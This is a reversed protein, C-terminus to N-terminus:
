ADRSDGQSDAQTDRVRRKAARLRELASDTEQSEPVQRATTGGTGEGPGSGTGTHTIPRSERRRDIRADPQTASAERAGDATAGGRFPETAAPVTRVAAASRARRWAALPDASASSGGGTFVSIFEGWSGRDVALRRVAVDIVLIAAAIIAMLDWMRRSSRPPSMGRRDFLAGASIGAITHAEGGTREAVARLLASNDRTSRFERSYPVSVTAQVSGGSRRGQADELAVDVLYSGTASSPFRGEYRGPGVQSLALRSLSGDPGIIRADARAFNLLAGGAETAEFEVISEEGDVRARLALNSPAPPRMLWRVAREWFQQYGDWAIWQASWRGSTDGTFAISRGLGHNWYALIPDVGDPSVHVIPIQALGDRPVTVVYGGLAPLTGTTSAIPGGMDGRQEPTFEGEILLSRAGISVERIFIEPLQRASAASDIAHFSGGGIRAIEKLLADNAGDGVGITSITIREARAANAIASGDEPTGVTQGDTLVVMHRTSARSERLEDLAVRMASFQDTGGCPGIRSVIGIASAPDGIRQRPVVINPSHDFAIVCLEDLRTMSKIGAIAASNAMDQKIRGAGPVVAGMSGSCDIVLAVCARMLDRTAPPDMKVPMAQAVESEIWGGAGFARDGGTMMLGGGLDHVYSRLMRDTANDVAYRPVNALIVADYAALAAVDPGLQEPPVVDVGIRGARLSRVLPDSEAGTEDVVLVRGDGEVIVTATGVNNEPIADASSADPEFAVRFRRPGALEMALPIEITNPGPDLAVRRGSGPANADLDLPQDNEWLYLTGVAGGQSRVLVRMSATQGLRARSPLRVGEVVTEREHVYELPLVDIPIGNAAALEAVSELSGATENGDSVLLIRNMTDSPLLALARQVGAALASGEMDAAQVALTVDRATRPVESVVAERAVNVVGVRDHPSDHDAFAGNLSKEARELVHTPVSRSADAVVLVCVGEGKWAISPQALAIALAAVLLSRMSSSAIARATGTAHRWRWASWWLAPLAMLLLLALPRELLIQPM